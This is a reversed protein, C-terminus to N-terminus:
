PQQKRSQEEFKNIIVGDCHIKEIFLHNEWTFRYFFPSLAKTRMAQRGQKEFCEGTLRGSLSITVSSFLFNYILKSVHTLRIRTLAESLTLSQSDNLFIWYHINM